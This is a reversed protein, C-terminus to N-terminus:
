DTVNLTISYQGIDEDTMGSFVLSSTELTENTYTVFDPLDVVTIYVLDWINMDFVEPLLYTYSSESLTNLNLVIKSNLEEFFVPAQNPATEVNIELIHSSVDSTANFNIANGTSAMIYVKYRKETTTDNLVLNHWYDYEDADINSGISL